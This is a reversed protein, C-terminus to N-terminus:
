IALHTLPGDPFMLCQPLQDLANPLHLAQSIANKDDIRGESSMTWGPTGIMIAWTGSAPKYISVTSQM